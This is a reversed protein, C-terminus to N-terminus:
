LAELETLFRWGWKNILAFNFNEVSKVGLGGDEKSMCVRDWNVRCFKRKVDGNDWM